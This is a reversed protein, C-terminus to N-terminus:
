ERHHESLGIVIGAPDRIWLEKAGYFTTREPLVIEAGQVAATAEALSAVDVYLASHESALAPVDAAVSKRTQLMIQSGDRVLLAFGLADEHPVSAVVTYGLRETWFPLAPEIADVIHLPTVDLIKM